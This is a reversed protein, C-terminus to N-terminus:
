RPRKKSKRPSQTAIASGFDLQRQVAVEAIKLAYLDPNSDRLRVLNWIRRGRQSVARKFAEPDKARLEILAQRGGPLLDGAVECFLEIEAESPNKWRSSGRRGPTLRVDDRLKSEGRMQEQGPTAGIRDRVDAAGPTAADQKPASAHSGATLICIVSCVIWNRTQNNM